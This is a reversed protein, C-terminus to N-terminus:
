EIPPVEQHVGTVQGSQLVPFPRKRMYANFHICYRSELDIRFIESYPLQYEKEWNGAASYCLISFDDQNCRTIPGLYFASMTNKFLIEIGPWIDRRQIEALVQPVTECNELWPLEDLSKLAGNERLIENFCQDFQDDRYGKIHKKMLIASGDLEFDVEPRVVIFTRKIHTVIGDYNKEGDPHHAKFRMCWQEALSKKYKSGLHM